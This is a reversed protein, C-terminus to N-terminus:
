NGAALEKILASRLGDPLRWALNLWGQEDTSGKRELLAILASREKALQSPRCKDPSTWDFIQCSGVSKNKWMRKSGSKIHGQGLEAECDTMNDM